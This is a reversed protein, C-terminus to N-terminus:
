KLLVEIRLVTNMRDQQSEQLAKSRTIKCREADNEISQWLAFHREILPQIIVPM